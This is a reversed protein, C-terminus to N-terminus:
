KDKLVAQVHEPDMLFYKCFATISVFHNPQLEFHNNIEKITQRATKDCVNMLLMVDATYLFLPAM